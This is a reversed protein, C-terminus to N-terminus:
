AANVDIKGGNKRSVLLETAKALDVRANSNTDCLVSRCQQMKGSDVCVNSDDMLFFGSETVPNYKYSFNYAACADNILTQMKTIDNQIKEAEPRLNKFNGLLWMSALLVATIIALWLVVETVM